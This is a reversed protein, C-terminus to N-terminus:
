QLAFDRSASKPAWREDWEREDWNVPKETRWGMQLSWITHMGHIKAKPM